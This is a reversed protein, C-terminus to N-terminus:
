KDQWAKATRAFAIIYICTNNMLQEVMSSKVGKLCVRQKLSQELFAVFYTGEVFWKMDNNATL